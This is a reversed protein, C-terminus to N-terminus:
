CAGSSCANNGMSTGGSPTKSFRNLGYGTGPGFRGSEGFVNNTFNGLVVGQGIDIGDGRVSQIVNGEVRGLGAVDSNFTLRIADGVLNSLRNGSVLSTSAAVIGDGAGSTVVLDEAAGRFGLVVGDGGWDRIVGNRVTVNVFAADIAAGGRAPCNPPSVSCTYSGAITFGNLDITISGGVAQLASAGGEVSLSSTLVYSRAGELRVPFGPADGPLCGTEVACTQSIEVRGDGAQAVGAMGPGLGLGLAAGLGAGMRVGKMVGKVTAGGGRKARRASRSAGLAAFLGAAVLALPTPEPVEEAFGGFGGFGGLAGSTVGGVGPCEPIGAENCLNWSWQFAGAVDHPGTAAAGNLQHGVQIQTLVNGLTDVTYDPHGQVGRFGDVGGAGTIEVLTTDPGTTQTVTATDSFFDDGVDYDYVNFLRVGMVPFPTLPNTIRSLSGSWTLDPFGDPGVADIGYTLSLVFTDGFPTTIVSDLSDQSAGDSSKTFSTFEHLIDLDDFYVFWGEHPHRNGPFLPHTVSTNDAPSTVSTDTDWTLAGPGDVLDVTIASAATAMLLTCGIAAHAVFRYM